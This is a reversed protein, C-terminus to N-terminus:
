PNSLRECFLVASSHVCGTSTCEGTEAVSHAGRFDNKTDQWFPIAYAPPVQKVEHGIRVVDDQLYASLEVSRTQRARPKPNLRRDQLREGAKAAALKRERYKKQKRRKRLKRKRPKRRPRQRKPLAPRELRLRQARTPASQQRLRTRM